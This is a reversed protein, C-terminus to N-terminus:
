FSDKLARVAGLVEAPQSPSLGVAAAVDPHDARVFPNTELERALRDPVTPEGVERLRRVEEARAVLSANEPEITLAFRLNSATYEHACHVWTDGPLDRIRSLSTWMQGPTGEFLRGCGGLFLTDGCFLRGAAAFYYAVHGRTHGPVFLVEAEDDGFSWRDADRLEVDIGPIRDRDHGSGVVRCGTAEKLALNAGTHDWHHHTTIIWDLSWGREALADLVPERLPPDVVGVAEGSRILWVYNDQLVPIRIVEM